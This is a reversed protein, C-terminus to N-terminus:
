YKKPLVNVDLGPPTIVWIAHKALKKLTSNTKKGKILGHAPNEEDRDRVVGLGLKRVFDVKLKILLYDDLGRLAADEKENNERMVVGLDVSLPGNQPHDNFYGSKPRWRKLEPDQNIEGPPIRRYVYSENPISPDDEQSPDAM